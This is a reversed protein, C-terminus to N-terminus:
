LGEDRELFEGSIWTVETGAGMGFVAGSTDIEYAIQQASRKGAGKRLMEATLAALGEKGVPDTLAGGQVYASFSILPVDRKEALILRAGNPLTVIRAAPLTIDAGHAVPVATSLVATVSLLLTTM